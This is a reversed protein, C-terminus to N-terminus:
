GGVPSGAVLYVRGHGFADRELPALDFATLAYSLKLYQMPVGTQWSLISPRRSSLLQAEL